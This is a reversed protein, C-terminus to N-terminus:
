AAHQGGRDLLARLVREPTLPLRVDLAANAANMESLRGVSILAAPEVIRANIMGVPSAGGAPPRSDQIDALLRLAESLDDPPHLGVKGSM